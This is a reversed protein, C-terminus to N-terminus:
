ELPVLTFSFTYTTHPKPQEALPLQLLLHNGELSFCFPEENRILLGKEGDTQLWLRYVGGRLTNDFGSVPLEHIAVFRSQNDAQSEGDPGPGFWRCRTLEKALPLRFGVCEPATKGTRLRLEAKVSGNSFLSYSLMLGSGAHYSATVTRTLQDVELVSPHWKKAGATRLEWEDPLHFGKKVQKRFLPTMPASLLPRKGAWIQEAMGSERALLFQAEGSRLFIRKGEERIAGGPNEDYIHRINGQDWQRRSTVVGGPTRHEATLYYRGPKYIHQRLDLPIALPEGPIVEARLLEEKVISGDRTLIWHFTGEPAMPFAEITLTFNDYRFAYPALAHAVQRIFPTGSGADTFLCEPWNGRFLGWCGGAVQPNERIARVVAEAQRPQSVHCLTSNKAARVAEPLPDSLFAFEEPSLIGETKGSSERAIICPHNNRFAALRDHIAETVADPYEGPVCCASDMVYVGLRDCLAYLEEPGPVTLFIGNFNQALLAKLDAEMAKESLVCGTAPDFPHYNTLFLKEPRSNILFQGNRIEPQCFGTQIERSSVIKGNELLVAAVRCLAPSGNDWLPLERFSLATEGQGDQILCSGHAIVQNGEMLAIRATLGDAQAASLKVALNGGPLLSARLDTIRRLPTTYLFVDGLIGSDAWIAPLSSCVVMMALTNKGSVVARSLDFEARLGVGRTMGMYQGNLWVLTREPAYSLELVTMRGQLNGSLTFSRRYLGINGTNLSQKGPVPILSWKKDPFDPTEWNEEPAEGDALSLFRWNGDLSVREEEFWPHPALLGEPLASPDLRKEM